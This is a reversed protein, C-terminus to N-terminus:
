RVPTTLRPAGEPSLAAWQEPRPRGRECRSGCALLAHAAAVTAALALSLLLWAAM